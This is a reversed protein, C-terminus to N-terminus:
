PRRRRLQPELNPNLEPNSPPANTRSKTQRRQFQQSKLLPTLKPTVKGGQFGPVFIERNLFYSLAERFHSSSVVANKFVTVLANPM